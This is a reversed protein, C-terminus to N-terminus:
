SINTVKIETNKDNSKLEFKIAKLCPACLPGLGGLDEWSKISSGSKIQIATILCESCIKSTYKKDVVM